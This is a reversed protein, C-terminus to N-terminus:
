DRDAERSQDAFSAVCGCIAGLQSSRTGGFWKAPEAASAAWCDARVPVPASIGPVEVPITKEVMLPKLRAWDLQKDAVPATAPAVAQVSEKRPRGPKKAPAPEKQDITAFATAILQALQQLQQNTAM